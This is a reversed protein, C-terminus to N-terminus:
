ALGLHRVKRFRKSWQNCYNGGGHANQKGRESTETFNASHLRLLQPGKGSRVKNGQDQCTCGVAKTMPGARTKDLVSGDETVKQRRIKKM